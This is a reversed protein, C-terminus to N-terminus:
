NGGGNSAKLAAPRTLVLTEQDKAEIQGYFNRLDGYSAAGFVTKGMVVNRYLTVSGETSKMDTNFAALGNIQAKGPTPASEVVLTAPFTFRVADNVESPFHMDVPLDRKAEPFRPKSNVEFLNVPVLLRKGTPSGIAGKVEYAVVLPQDPETLHDVRVVKIDMGGPLTHELETRLENHLSTEDGRLSRQRWSLAPDGNYTITVMGSAVGQDDLKLDAIRKQQADKYISGPTNGIDVGGNDVQRLGGALTHKWALHGFSCYREGPDFYMEKGDVNVIAVLDDLQEMSLYSPLFLRQNRNAVAMVYAKFGAARSMAVFLQAMQDSTGRKRTLVDDVTHTEKLGEAREESSTRERTYDTNEVAM